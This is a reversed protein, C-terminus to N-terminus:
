ANRQLVTFFDSVLPENAEFSHLSAELENRHFFLLYKNLITANLSHRLEKRSHIM